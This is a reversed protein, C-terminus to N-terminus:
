LTETVKSLHLPRDPNFGRAVSLTNALRYFSAIQLIPAITPDAFPMPLRLGPAEPVGASIVRAGREAFERALAAVSGLSEDAQGFLLVPFGDRVVTMPGHRVEAASFAEAHIACTEKLKLAAEQAIGLAHGRGVVYMANTARLEAVAISWDEAWAEALKDPLKSRASKLAPDETWAALLDLVAALAAIFSKTAAVSHEAGASLPILVDAMEALPSREDNVMAVVFAGATSAQSAASLLDPSRGSQSIALVVTATLDPTAEYVSGVSPSASSTLVGARTEILYRAFTAANDSSGRALTVIARPTEARLRSGLEAIAAQNRSGQRRVVQTAEQAERFMLTAEPVIADVAAQKEPVLSRGALSTSSPLSIM